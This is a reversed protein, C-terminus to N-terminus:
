RIVQRKREEILKKKVEDLRRQNECRAKRDRLILRVYWAILMLFVFMGFQVWFDSFTNSLEKKIYKASNLRIDRAAVLLVKGCPTGDVSVAMEGLIDGKSLPASLEKGDAQGYIVIEKKVDEPALDSRTLIRISESPQLGVSDASKAMTVRATAAVATKDAVTQWSFSSFGWEFLRKAASYSQTEAAGEAEAAPAAGFVVAILDMDDNKAYSAISYGNEPSADTMGGLCYRYYCSNNNRLMINHNYLSRGTSLNTSETRYALTGAIESFLRHRRAESLILYQDRATTYGGDDASGFANTFHTGGCGLLAAKRNMEETFSEISGSLREAIINCAGDSAALFACHLLDKFPMVEGPRLAQKLENEKVGNLASESAAVPENLMIRGNEVAEAALLLTMVKTIGGPATKIDINKEYLIKGSNAEALLAARATIDLDTMASAAPLADSLAITLAISFVAIIYFKKM